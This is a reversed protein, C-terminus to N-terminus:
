SYVAIYGMDCGHATSLWNDDSATAPMEVAFTIRWRNCAITARMERLADLVKEGPIVYGMKRFRVRGPSTFVPHWSDTIERTAVLREAPRNVPPTTSPMRVGLECLAACLRDPPLEDDLCAAFRGQM